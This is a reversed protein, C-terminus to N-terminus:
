LGTLIEDAARELLELYKREDYELGGELLALPTVRWAKVPDRASAIVYRVTEGPNLRLGAARLAKAALAHPSDAKYEEPRKSLHFSVALEAARVQGTRLRDRYGEVIEALSGALARREPAGRAGALANLLESQMSKILPPTDRRRLAIGRVKLEGDEFAGFYRGPVGSRPDARSPCFRIWRYVGELGIPCGAETEIDRRLGEYDMGKRGVIWVSDVLAHLMRFGRREVAEKARLLVERGAATVCEHAEIKGFRANKFGLYGFVCVLTWKHAAARSKYSAAGPGGERALAKYRIRKALIPAIVKPVLGQRRTCLNHGIEPIVNERCCSCNVTEPSINWRAMLEPYMSVFDYEAVEDFWGVDPEYALGGKDAIVLDSAPRFDEAQQKEMPVLSGDQWAQHLQMSTLATGITCRAARQLPIRAVRATEVLGDLGCERLTFSNKLDLHWRGFLTRSGSQYVNRGYTMFSRARRRGMGRDADRSLELPVGAKEAEVSLLPLLFSDGWETTLVDPDWEDMRARLSRLQDEMTGAFECSIGDMTLALEGRPAHNPDISGAIDSGTLALHATRLPPMAYDLAWPDDLLACSLVRPPQADGADEIEFACRALPFHGREYHWVQVPHVDANCLTLGPVRLRRVLGSHYPPPVRVELVPVTRGTFLDTKHTWGCRVPHRQSQLFALARSMRSGGGSLCFGPHWPDFLMRSSGNADIVWLRVGEPDTYADFLWAEISHKPV